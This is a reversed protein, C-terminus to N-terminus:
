LFKMEYDTFPASLGRNDLEAKIEDLVEDSEASIHHFHYGDTLASLPQSVGQELDSLFRKVDRRNKVDLPANILGYTRHNVAVDVLCGGCDVVANMEEEIQSTGHKVKFLRIVQAAGGFVYGRNTSSIPHGAARLLAVDQVIVQRSVSLQESLKQGSVAVDSGKLIRVIEQRRESGSM